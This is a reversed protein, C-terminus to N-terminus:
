LDEDMENDFEDYLGGIASILRETDAPSLLYTVGEAFGGNAKRVSLTIAATMGGDYPGGSTMSALQLKDLRVLVASMDEGDKTGGQWGEDDKSPIEM